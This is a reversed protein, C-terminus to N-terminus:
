RSDLINYDKLSVSGFPKTSLAFSMMRKLMALFNNPSGFSFHGSSSVAIIQDCLIKLDLVALNVVNLSKNPSSATKDISIM